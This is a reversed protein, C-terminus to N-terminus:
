RATEAKEGTTSKEGDDASGHLPMESEETIGTHYDFRFENALAAM